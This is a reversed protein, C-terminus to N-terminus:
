PTHLIASGSLRIYRLPKLSIHFASKQIEGQEYGRQDPVEFPPPVLRHEEKLALKLDQLLEEGIRHRDGMRKHQEREEPLDQQEDCQKLLLWRFPEGICANDAEPQQQAHDAKNPDDAKVPPDKYRRQRKDKNRDIPNPAIASGFWLGFNVFISTTPADIAPIGM